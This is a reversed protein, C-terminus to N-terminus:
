QGGLDWGVFEDELDVDLAGIVRALATYGAATATVGAVAEDDYEAALEDFIADDVEGHVVARAYRLLTAEREDFGSLDRRGIARVDDDPIGVSGAVNVHQHFEYANDLERAVTLIVLERERDTLGSDTWLAGLFTRFGDLVPPNNAISRYVNVTKGPQLSSVVLDRYEEPLDEPDQYPVRAM